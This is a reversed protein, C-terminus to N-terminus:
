SQGLRVMGYMRVIVMQNEVLLVGGVVLLLLMISHGNRGYQYPSIM